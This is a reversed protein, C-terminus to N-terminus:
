GCPRASLNALINVKSLYLVSVHSEGGSATNYIMIGQAELTITPVENESPAGVQEAADTLDSRSRQMRKRFTSHPGLEIQFRIIQSKSDDKLMAAIGDKFATNNDLVVDEMAKGHVSEPTTGVLDRWSPSVFRITGDLALDLIVNQSHEAAEKLEEREM